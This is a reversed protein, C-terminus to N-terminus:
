SHSFSSTQIHMLLGHSVHDFTSALPAVVVLCHHIALLILEILYDEHFAHLILRVPHPVGSQTIEEQKLLLQAPLRALRSASMQELQLLLQLGQGWLFLVDELYQLHHKRVELSLRESRPIVSVSLEM